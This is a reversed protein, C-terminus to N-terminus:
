FWNGALGGARRRERQLRSRSLEELHDAMRVEGAALVGQRPHEADGISVHSVRDEANGKFPNPVRAAELLASLRM